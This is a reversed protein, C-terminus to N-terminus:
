TKKGKEIAGTHMRGKTHSEHGISNICKKVDVIEMHPLVHSKQGRLRALQVQSSTRWNWGNVQLHCFKMRRQPQTFNWQTYTDCKRLGTMALPADQSNRYNSNQSHAAIFL